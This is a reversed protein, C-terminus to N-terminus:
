GRLIYAIKQAADGTGLMGNHGQTIQVRSSTWTVRHAYEVFVETSRILVNWGIDVLERWGTDPMM